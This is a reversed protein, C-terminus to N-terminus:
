PQVRVETGTPHVPLDDIRDSWTANAFSLRARGPGLARFTVEALSGTGTSTGSAGPSSLSHAVIIRGPQQNTFFM